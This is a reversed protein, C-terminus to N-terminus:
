ITSFWQMWVQLQLVSFSPKVPVIEWGENDIFMKIEEIRFAHYRKFYEQTQKHLAEQLSESSVSAFEEGVAILRNCFVCIFKLIATWFDIAAGQHSLQMEWRNILNLVHIFENFKFSSLDVALLLLRIKQQIEQWLRARGHELKQEVYKKNFDEEVALDSSYLFWYVHPM